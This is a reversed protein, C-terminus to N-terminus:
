SLVQIQTEVEFASMINGVASVKEKLQSLMWRAEVFGLKRSDVASVIRRVLSHVADADAPAVLKLAEILYIGVPDTERVHAILHPDLYRQFGRPVYQDIDVEPDYMEALEPVVYEDISIFKEFVEALAETFQEADAEFDIQRLAEVDAVNFSGESLDFLGLKDQVVHRLEELLTIAIQKRTFAFNIIKTQIVLSESPIADFALHPLSSYVEIQHGGTAADYRIGASIQGYLNRDALKAARFVISIDDLDDGDVGCAVLVARIASIDVRIEFLGRNSIRISGEQQNLEPDHVSKLDPTLQQLAKNVAAIDKKLPSDQFGLRDYIKM